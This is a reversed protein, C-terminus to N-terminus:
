CRSFRGGYEGVERPGFNGKIKGSRLSMKPLLSSIGLLFLRVQSLSMLQANAFPRFTVVSPCNSVCQPMKGGTLM